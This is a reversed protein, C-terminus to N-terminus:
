ASGQPGWSGHQPPPPLLTGPCRRVAQPQHSRPIFAVAPVGVLGLRDADPNGRIHSPLDGGPVWESVLQFLNVTVGLLPVINPHALHKWM